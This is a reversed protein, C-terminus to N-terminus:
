YIPLSGVFLGILLHLVLPAAPVAEILPRAALYWWPSLANRHDVTWFLKAANSGRGDQLFELWNRFEGIPWLDFGFDLGLAQLVLMTAILVSWSSLIVFLDSSVSRVEAM